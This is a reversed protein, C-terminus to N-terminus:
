PKVSPTTSSRDPKTHLNSIALEEETMDETVARQEKATLDRSLDILRRLYEDINLSGANYDAILEEIREALHFRTPKRHTADISRQRL